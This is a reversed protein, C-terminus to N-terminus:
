FLPGTFNSPAPDIVAFSSARVQMVALGRENLGNPTFRFIGNVGAFGAPDTLRAPTFPYSNNQSHAEVVLAGVAATADFALGIIPQEPRVGYAAAYKQAFTERLQPDPSAFWGGELVDEQLTAPNDWLGTGLFKVKRPSVNQYALFSGMTQLAQGADPILVGNIGPNSKLRQKFERAGDEIGQFDQVYRQVFALRSGAQAAAKHSAAISVEGYPTQPTLLAVSNVGQQNAYGIVRKIETEPLFGILFTSASAVATDTSFAITTIGAPQTVRKVAEVSHSFLPGVIVDAGDKLALTAANAATDALGATDYVRLDIQAGKVNAVALKVANQMQRALTAVDSKNSGLPILLGVQAAQGPLVKGAKKMEEKEPQVQSAVSQPDIVRPPEAQTQNQGNIPPITRQPACAGLFIAICAVWMGSTMKGVRGKGHIM